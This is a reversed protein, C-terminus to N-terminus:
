ELPARMDLTSGGLQRAEKWREVATAPDGRQLAIDGRAAIASRYTDAASSPVKLFFSEAQDLKGVRLYSRALAFVVDTTVSGNFVADELDPIAEEFNGQQYKELGRFRSANPDAPKVPHAVRNQKRRRVRSRANNDGPV